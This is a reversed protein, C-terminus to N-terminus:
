QLRRAGAEALVAGPRTPAILLARAHVAGESRSGARALVLLTTEDLVVEVAMGLARQTLDFAETAAEALSIGVISQRRFLVPDALALPDHVVLGAPVFVVWRRALGHMARALVVALPVGIALVAIGAWQRAALLLAGAAPAGVTVAWALELPGLLLPGPARLPFRRENPYAAGDVFAAATEPMLVMATAILASAIAAGSAVPGAGAVIAAIAAPVSAPAGVRVITLTIPDLVLSAVLVVVWAGWLGASAVHQVPASRDHLASAFAPGATFPMVAWAVRVLWTM